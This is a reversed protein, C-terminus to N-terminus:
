SGDGGDGDVLLDDLAGLAAEEASLNEAGSDRFLIRSPHVCHSEVCCCVMM